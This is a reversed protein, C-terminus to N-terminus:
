KSALKVMNSYVASPGSSNNNNNNNSSGLSTGVLLSAQLLNLASQKVNDSNKINKLESEPIKISLGESLIKIIESNSQTNTVIQVLLEIISQIMRLLTTDSTNINNLSGGTYNDLEMKSLKLQQQAQTINTNIGYGSKSYVPTSYKPSNIIPKTTNLVQKYITDNTRLKKNNSSGLHKGKGFGTNSVNKDYYYSRMYIRPDVNNTLSQGLKSSKRIEYHLHNGTSVGTSGVYGIVTKGYVVTDGTRLKSEERLHAFYHRHDRKDKIIIHYGYGKDYASYVVTGSVPSLIPTGGNAAYDIGFHHGQKGDIWRLGYDSSMYAFGKQSLFFNDINGDIPSTTILGDEPIANDGLFFNDIIGSEEKDSIGLFSKFGDTLGSITDTTIKFLSDPKEYVGGAMDFAKNVESLSVENEGFRSSRLKNKGLGSQKQPIYKDISYRINNEKIKPQLKNKGLGSQQASTMIKSINGMWSDNPKGNDYSAYVHNPDGYLMRYLTNQGRNIYNDRIWKAGNIIGSKFDTGLYMASEYPSNNYAAVGFYNHKDRAIKSKGWGSELAAHAILYKPDLGSEDSALLFINGRGRFPSDLPAYSHIWKNLESVTPRRFKTLDANEMGSIFNSMAYNNSIKPMTGSYTTSDIKKDIGLFSKFSDTLGSITDTTIKFLSDPKEYVGGAMDFAKNVNKLSVENQGFGSSRLKNKGKGSPVIAHNSQNIVSSMDTEYSVENSMPDTIKVKGNTSGSAVVYHGDPGFTGSSNSEGLLIVPTNTHKLTNKLGHKNKDDIAIAKTTVGKSSLYDGFFEINTGGDIDKYGKDIAFNAADIPNENIGLKNMFVSSALPACGSDGLTQRINDGPNNYRINRWNNNENNDSNTGRGTISIQNPNVEIEGRSARSKPSNIYTDRTVKQVHKVTMNNIYTPVTKVPNKFLEFTKQLTTKNVMDNYADVTLDEINNDKKYKEYEAMFEDQSETLGIAAEGNLSIIKYSETAIHHVFDLDYLSSTLENLIDIVPGFVGFGLIFKIASSILKMGWTVNNEKVHFLKATESDTMGTILNWGGFLIAIPPLVSATGRSLKSIARSLLTKSGKLTKSLGPFLTSLKSLMPSSVKGTRSIFKIFQKGIDDITTFIMASVKNNKTLLTELMEDTSGVLAKKVAVEAVDDVSGTAIKEIVTALNKDATKQLSKNTLTKIKKLGLLVTDKIVAGGLGGDVINKGSADQRGPTEGKIMSFLKNKAAVVADGLYGFVIPIYEKFKEGLLDIGSKVTKGIFDFVIKGPSGDELFVKQLLGPLFTAMVGSLLPHDKVFGFINDLLTPKKIKEGDKNNSFLGKFSSFFGLRQIREEEESKELNKLKAQQSATLDVDLHKDTNDRKVFEGLRNDYVHENSEKTINSIDNIAEKTNEAGKNIANVIKDNDSENNKSNITPKDSDIKSSKGYIKDRIDKLVDVIETGKTEFVDSVDKINTDKDENPLHLKQQRTKFDVESNLLNIYKKIDGKNSMDLNKLGLKSIKKGLDSKSANKFLKRQIQLQKLKIGDDNIIAVLEDIDAPDLRSGNRSKSKKVLEIAEDTHGTNILKLINQRAGRSMFPIKMKDKDNFFKNVDRFIKQQLKKTERDVGSTGSYIGKLATLSEQSEELSLGALTQDDERFKDFGIGIGASGPVQMTALAGRLKHDDRWDLREEASMSSRGQMIQRQRLSNGLAGVMKFPMSIAAKLPKTAIKFFGSILKGAPEFLKEKLWIDIPVGIFDEAVKNLMNPIFNITKGLIHRIEDTIPQIANKLPAIMDREIFDLVNDRIDKASNKLPEVIGERIGGLVGGVYNGDKDKSGFLVEKFSDTTSLLGLGAGLAANGLLGFPTGAVLTGITGLAINPLARSIAQRRDKNILGDDGFIAERMRDNNKLYALSSGIMLGGTLGFPTLAGTVAGALGYKGMDPLYQNMLKQTEKSVLGGTRDGDEGIEGFLYNQLHKSNKLLAVGAGVSAGLLPGGIVGPIISIGAGIIAASGIKPLYEKYNETLDNIAINFNDNLKDEDIEEKENKTGFLAKRVETIGKSLELVMEDMLTVKGTEIGKKEFRQQAKEAFTLKEIPINTTNEEEKKGLKLGKIKNFKSKYYAYLESDQMNEGDPIAKRLLGLFRDKPVVAEDKHALILKTKDLKETGINLKEIDNLADENGEIKIDADQAAMKIEPDISISSEDENFKDKFEKHKDKIWDPTRDKVKEILPSYVEKMTDKTYQYIGKIDEKLQKTLPTLLGEAGTGKNGFLYEGGKKFINIDDTNLGFPELIKNLIGTFGGYNDLKEKLPSLINTDLWTNLKSFSEQVNVIMVDLVGKVPKGKYLNDEVGFISEYLRTDVQDIINSIMKGPAKTIGSLKDGFIKMKDVVNDARLLKNLISPDDEPNNYYHEKSKDLWNKYKQNKSNSRRELELKRSNIDINNQLINEIHSDNNDYEDLQDYTTMSLGKETMRKQKEEQRIRFSEGRQQQELYKKAGYTPEAINPVYIESSLNYKDHSLTQGIPSILSPVQTSQNNGSISYTRIGNLLVGYIRNLYTHIDYGFKDKTLISEEFINKSVITPDEKNSFKIHENISDSNGLISYISDSKNELDEINRSFDNRGELINKSFEMQKNRPLSKFYTSIIQFNTDTIGLGEYDYKKTKRRPDFMVGERFFYDLFENMDSDFTDKQGKNTFMIDRDVNGQIAERINSSANKSASDRMNKFSDAVERANIFKGKEYDYVVEEKNTSASLIKRLYYPIVETLAKHDTGTWGTQGKNYNSTDFSNKLINNVGFIPLIHERIAKLIPNDEEDATKSLTNIRLIMAGFYSGISKNLEEMSNKVTNGIAVEIVKKPIFSLPAAAMMLLANSDEGFLNGIDLGSEGLKARARNKISKGYVKLDPIGNADVIDSYTVRSSKKEEELEAGYRNREMEVLEKLYALSQNQYDIGSAYYSISNNAHTTLNGSVIEAMQSINSNINNLSSNMRGFVETNQMMQIQNAIRNSNVVHKGSEIVSNCIAETSAISSVEISRSIYEDGTSIDIDEDSGFDIDSGFEFDDSGFDDFGSARKNIADAKTTNYLDGTRISEFISQVGVDAAEYIKSNKISTNIRRLVQRRDRIIYNMEKFLESNTSVYEDIAPNFEKLIDISALKASKGLNKIYQNVKKM